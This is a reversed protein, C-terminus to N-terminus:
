GSSLDLPPPGTVEPIVADFADAIKDHGSNDPHLCDTGGVLDDVGILRSLPGTEAVVADYVAAQSRIIDNLGGALPVPGGGELVLDAFPALAALHCAPLPNYYTMVAITTDPGAAARLESLIIPYNRAVEALATQIAVLCAPDAPDDVCATLLAEFDNGGIDITILDVDDAPNSNGNRELLSVAEPLQQSVLTSTTAGREALNVLDLRCGLAQGDGCDREANLQARLEPVYGETAPPEAGVGVAVSDGMALYVLPQRPAAASAPTSGIVALPLVLLCICLSRLRPM